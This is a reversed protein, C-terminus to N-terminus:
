NREYEFIEGNSTLKGFKNDTVVSGNIFITNYSSYKTVGANIIDECNHIHGFLMFKPQIKLIRKKLASCGCNELVNERSYSFDLVGKPPGHTVVIDTDEPINEWIRNIKDRVRMFSWGCFEPTYPSGWIKISNILCYDNELYIIGSQEFNDKTIYRKEISTDHNGAIFIKYKIPLLSFWTIFNRVEQENIVPDRPNSCDGGFIVCDINEPVKLMEHFTHTDSIFWFKM